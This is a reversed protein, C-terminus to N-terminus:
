RPLFPFGIRDRFSCRLLFHLVGTNGIMFGAVPYKEHGALWYPRGRSDTKKLHMIVSAIHQAREWWIEERFVRFAELYTEGLGALGEYQGLSNGIIDPPLSRLMSCATDKDRPDGYLQFAKMFPLAIGALGDCWWPEVVKAASLPWAAVGPRRYGAKNRLWQLGRLAGEAANADRWRSAYELLFYVIGAAGNAFGKSFHAKKSSRRTNWSGDKEQRSVIAASIDSLREHLVVADMVPACILNAIGQGAMGQAIGLREAPKGLLSPVNEQCGPLDAALHSEQAMYLSVAVGDAGLHLGPMVKDTRQLYKVDILRSGEHIAGTCASIDMGGRKAMALFYIIGAAGRSVSAYWSKNMQRKEDAVSKMDEAFWGKEPDCLLPTALNEIAEQVADRLESGHFGGAVPVLIEKQKKMRGRYGNLAAKLDVMSIREGPVPHFCGLLIGALAADRIFFNVRQRIVEPKDRLLKAPSIGTFANLMIAGVSFVDDHVSPAQTAEQEPSMYGFTGLQFPPSPFQDKLSYSLEMDIVAVKGRPTVMFNSPTVDRHVIHNKHLANLIDVLQVMYGFFRVATKDGALLHDRMTLGRSKFFKYLPQGKIYDMVLYYNGNEEFSGLLGPMRVKHQLQGHLLEQWKLRDRIDRGEGDKSEGFSGEKIVCLGFKTLGRIYFCKVVDNKRSKKLSKLIIYYYGIRKGGKKVAKQPIVPQETAVTTSPIIEPTEM